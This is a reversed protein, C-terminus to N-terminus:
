LILHWNQGAAYKRFFYVLPAVGSGGGLAVHADVNELPTFGRGLPGIIRFKAGHEAGGALTSESVRRLTQTGRGSVFYLLEINDGRADLLALPRPLLPESHGGVDEACALMVFQGPQARR